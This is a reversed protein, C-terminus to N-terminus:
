ATAGGDVPIFTGTVYRSADSALFLATNAIDEPQAMRKMPVSAAVQEMTGQVIGNEVDRRMSATDTAGPCIANVRVGEEALLLAASRVFQIVGGKSVAYSPLLAGGSLGATSATVIISAGTSKRLLPLLQQTLFMPVWTNVTMLETWSAHDYDLGVPGTIGAQNWFVDLVQHKATVAKVFAELAPQEGLEVGFSEASGGNGNGNIETAVKEAGEGNRDAIIVHAGHAAFLRAGARGMGSAGGTILAIKGTLSVFDSTQPETM